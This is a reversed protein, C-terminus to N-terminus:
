QKTEKSISSKLQSIEKKTSEQAKTQRTLQAKATARQQRLEKEQEEL